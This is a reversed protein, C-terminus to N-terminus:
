KLSYIALVIKARSSFVKKSSFSRLSLHLIVAAFSLALLVLVKPLNIPDVYGPFIALITAPIALVALKYSPSVAVQAM